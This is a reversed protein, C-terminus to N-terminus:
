KGKRMAQLRVLYEAARQAEEVTPVVPVVTQNGAIVAPQQRVGSTIRGRVKPTVSDIIILKGNPLRYENGVVAERAPIAQSMHIELEDMSVLTGM